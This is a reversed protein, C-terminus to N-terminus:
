LIEELDHYTIYIYCERPKWVDMNLCNKGLYKQGIWKYEVKVIKHTKKFESVRQKVRIELPNAYIGDGYEHLEKVKLSKDTKKMITGKENKWM